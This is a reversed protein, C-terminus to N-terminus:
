GGNAAVSSEAHKVGYAVVLPNNLDKQYQDSKRESKKTDIGVDLICTTAALQSRDTTSRDGLQLLGLPRLFVIM